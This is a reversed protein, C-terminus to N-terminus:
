MEYFWLIRYYREGKRRKLVGISSKEGERELLDVFLYIYIGDFGRELLDFHIKYVQQL